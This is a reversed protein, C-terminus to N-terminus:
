GWPEADVGLGRARWRKLSCFTLADQLAILGDYWMSYQERAHDVVDEYVRLTPADPWCARMSRYHDRTEVDGRYTLECAILRRGSGEYIGRPDGRRGEVAVALLPLRLPQWEPTSRVAGHTILAQRYEWHLCEVYEHVTLADDDVHTVGYFRAGSPSKDVMCGLAGIEMVIGTQSVGAYGEAGGANGRHAQQVAYTWEVLDRVTIDVRARGAAVIDREAEVVGM